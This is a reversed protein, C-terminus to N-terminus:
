RSAKMITNFRSDWGGHPETYRVWQDVRASDVLEDWESALARWVAGMESKAAAMAASRISPVERMMRECRRFDGWDHPYSYPGPMGLSARVLSESSMGREGDLLWRLLDGTDIENNM